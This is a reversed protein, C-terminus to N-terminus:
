FHCIKFEEDSDIVALKGLRHSTLTESNAIDNNSISAANSTTSGRRHHENAYYRGGSSRNPGGITTTATTVCGGGMGSLGASGASSNLSSDDNTGDSSLGSICGPSIPEDYNRRLIVFRITAGAAEAVM